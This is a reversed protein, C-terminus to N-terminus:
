RTVEYPGGIAPTAQLAAADIAQNAIVTPVDMWESWERFDHTPGPVISNWLRCQLVTETNQGLPDTHSPRAQRKLWRLEIM